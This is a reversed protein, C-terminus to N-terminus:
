FLAQEELKYLAQELSRRVVDKKISKIAIVSPNYHLKTKKKDSCPRLFREDSQRNKGITPVTSACDRIIRGCAMFYYHMTAFSKNEKSM